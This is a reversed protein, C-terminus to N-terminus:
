LGISVILNGAVDIAVRQDPLIVSTSSMEEIIAPGVLPTASCLRRRDYVTTTCWGRETGYYVQRRGVVPDGCAREPEQQVGKQSRGIAQVRCNVIETARGDVNYGYEQEHREKFAQLFRDVPGGLVADAPVAVEFNQGDYRAEIIARIERRDKEVGERELWRTAEAKMDGFINAVREWAQEDVISLESRVFDMNTDSLLIGRACLTGPELPIIVTRIGCDAALDCAHLPGAGGYAFLAFERVDHGKETSVSRIARSMNANAIRLIGHAAAEVTIGLPVAVKSEISRRAALADVLLRGELLSKPDLRGLVINADTITPESGGLQYAVPGPVAGASRPGVKLGGADDLAAISGGGAGIVHIDIMPTKVPYDAVLRDSAFLPEGKIIISVDTSTGGVDFTILNRFGAVRGVEAAGIVGAAPGSVCTRVPSQRVAPVSMLGGNSHITDLEAVIGLDAVRELLRELYSHMRPAIYANLVTTSMREYERFEPLVDSSLSVYADPLVSRVIAAARREHDSYRYSHLFCIVVARVNAARLALAADRVESEDLPVLVNGNSLVRETVELRLERPVLPPPRHIDYNYLHPRVQRGIELVDRFGKTTILGTVAGKREIVLNTAVTTGHGLHDIDGSRIGLVDILHSIGNGIAESPDGPTSPIKYYTIESTQDDLLTFDTFTGGVDFSIRLAMSRAGITGDENGSLSSLPDSPDAAFVKKDLEFVQDLRDRFKQWIPAPLEQPAQCFNSLMCEYRM